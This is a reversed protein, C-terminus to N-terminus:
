IFTREFNNASVPDSPLLSLSLLYAVREAEIEHENWDLSRALIRKIGRRGGVHKFMSPMYPGTGGCGEHGLLMHGFEHCAAHHRHPQTDGAPLLIVSAQEKEMWLGTVTPMLSSDVETLRIPKGHAKIDAALLEDFTVRDSLNLAAVVAEPTLEKERITQGFPKRFHVSVM